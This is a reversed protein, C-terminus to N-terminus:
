KAPSSSLSPQDSSTYSADCGREECGSAYDDGEDDGVDSSGVCCQLRQFPGRFAGSSCLM